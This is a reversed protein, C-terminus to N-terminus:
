FNIIFHIIFYYAIMLKKYFKIRNNIKVINKRLKLSIFFVSETRVNVNICKGCSWTLHLGCKRVRKKIAYLTFM